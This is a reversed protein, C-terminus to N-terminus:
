PALLGIRLTEAVEKADRLAKDLDAETIRNETYDVLARMIDNLIAPRTVGRIADKVKQPSHEPGHEVPSGNADWM